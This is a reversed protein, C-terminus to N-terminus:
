SKLDDSHICAKRYINANAGVLTIRTNSSYVNLENILYCMGHTEKFNNSILDDSHSLTGTHTVIM